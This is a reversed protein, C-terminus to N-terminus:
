SKSIFVRKKTVIMQYHLPHAIKIYRDITLVVTSGTSQIYVFSWTSVYLKCWTILTEQSGGQKTTSCYVPTYLSTILCLVTAHCVDCLALNCLYVLGPNFSQNLVLFGSLLVVAVATNLCAQPIGIVYPAYSYMKCVHRSFLFLNSNNSYVTTNFIDMVHGFFLQTSLSSHSINLSAEVTKQSIGTAM